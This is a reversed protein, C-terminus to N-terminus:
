RKYPFEIDHKHQRHLESQRRKLGTHRMHPFRITANSQEANKYQGFTQLVCLCFGDFLSKRSM